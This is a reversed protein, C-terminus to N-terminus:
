NHTTPVQKIDLGRYTTINITTNQMLKSRTIKFVPMNPGFRDAKILLLQYKTQILVDVGGAIDNSSFVM